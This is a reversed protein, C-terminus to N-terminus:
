DKEVVEGPGIQHMMGKYDMGMARTLPGSSNPIKCMHTNKYVFKTFLPLQGFTVIEDEYEYKCENWWDLVWGEIIAEQVEDAMNRYFNNLSLIATSAEDHIPEIFELIQEYTTIEEIKM